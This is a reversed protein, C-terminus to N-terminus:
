ELLGDEVYKGNKYIEVRIINGNEAYIYQKGNIFKGNKFEGDQFLRRQSDYVKHKGNLIPLPTNKKEKPTRLLNDNTTQKNKTKPLSDDRHMTDSQGFCFNAIFLLGFFVILKKMKSDFKSIEIRLYSNNSNTALVKLTKLAINNEFFIYGQLNQAITLGAFSPASVGCGGAPPSSYSRSGPSAIEFFM